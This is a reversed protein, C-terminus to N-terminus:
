TLLKIAAIAIRGSKTPECGRWLVEDGMFGMLAGRIAWGHMPTPLAAIKASWIGWARKAAEDREAPSRLDVRLSPDAQMKDPIMAIAAAQPGLPRGLYRTCYNAWAASMGTWVETVARREDPTTLALICRGMDSGQLPDRAADADPAGRAIRAAIVTQMADAEHERDVQAMRERGRAKRRPIPAIAVAAGWAQKQKERKRRRDAKGM